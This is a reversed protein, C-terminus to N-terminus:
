SSKTILGVIPGADTTNGEGFVNIAVRETGRVAVQDSAFFVSADTDFSLARRNGFYAGLAMDGLYCIFQSDADTKPMVNVFEVPVGYMMMPQAAFLAGQPTGGLANVLRVWVNWYFHRHCFVRTRDNDAFDPLVSFLRQMDGIVVESMANGTATVVGGLAATAGTQSDFGSIRAFAGALGTFHWYTSSGDGLFGAQDEAKAISRTMSDAILEGVAIASDETLESSIKTLGAFKEAILKVNSLAPDDDTITAGQGYKDITIDEDLKPWIATDGEMPVNRANMRFKGHSELLVILQNVFQDPFLASGTSTVIGSMAKEFTDGIPVGSITIGKENLYNLCFERKPSKKCFAGIVFMGVQKAQELSAWRGKYTVGDHAQANIAKVLATLDSVNTELLKITDEFKAKETKMEEITKDQGDAKETLEDLTVMIPEFRKALQADSKKVETLVEAMITEAPDM